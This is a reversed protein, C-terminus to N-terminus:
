GSGVLLGLITKLSVNLGLTWAILLPIKAAVFLGMTPSRWVGVSHGYASLGIGIVTLCFCIQPAHAKASGAESTTPTPESFSDISPPIPCANLSM